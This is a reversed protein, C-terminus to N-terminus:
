LARGLRLGIWCAALGLVVSVAINAMAVRDYGLRTAQVTEYSFTSFTTFAGLLGITLFDRVTPPAPWRGSTLAGMLFGLAAAGVVNVSLTGWPFPSSKTAMAVWGSLTYRMVAGVAGGLAVALVRVASM